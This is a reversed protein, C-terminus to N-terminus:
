ELNWLDKDKDREASSSVLQDLNSSGVSLLAQFLLSMSSQTRLRGIERLPESTRCTPLNDYTTNIMPLAVSKADRGKSVEIPADQLFTAVYILRHSKDSVTLVMGGYSLGPSYICAEHLFPGISMDDKLLNLSQDLVALLECEGKRHITLCGSAEAVFKSGESTLLSGSM